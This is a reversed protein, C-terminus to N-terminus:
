FSVHFMMCKQKEKGSKEVGRGGKVPNIEERGKELGMFFVISTILSEEENRRDEQEGAWLSLGRRKESRRRQGMLNEGKRKLRRVLSLNKVPSEM